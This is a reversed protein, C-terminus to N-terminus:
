VMKMGGMNSEMDSRKVLSAKLVVDTCIFIPPLYRPKNESTTVVVNYAVREFVYKAAGALRPAEGCMGALEAPM